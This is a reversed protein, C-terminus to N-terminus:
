RRLVSDPTIVMLSQENDADFALVDDKAQLLL